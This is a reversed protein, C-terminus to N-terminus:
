SATERKMRESYSVFQVPELLLLGFTATDGPKIFWGEQLTDFGGIYNECRMALLAGGNWRECKVHAFSSVIQYKFQELAEVDLTGMHFTFGSLIWRGWRIPCDTGHYGFVLYSNM